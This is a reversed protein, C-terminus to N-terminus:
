KKKKEKGKEIAINRVLGTINMELKEMKMYMLYVLYFLVIISLYIILDTGRGIGLFQSIASSIEPAITLVILIIWVVVWVIGQWLSIKKAKWNM